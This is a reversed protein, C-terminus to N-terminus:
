YETQKCIRSTIFKRKPAVKHPIINHFGAKIGTENKEGATIFGGTGKEQDITTPTLPPDTKSAKQKTGQTRTLLCSKRRRKM